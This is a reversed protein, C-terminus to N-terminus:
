GHDVEISPMIDKRGHSQYHMVPSSTDQEEFIHVGPESALVNIPRLSYFAFAIRTGVERLANLSTYQSYLSTRLGSKTM